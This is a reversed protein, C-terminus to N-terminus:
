DNVCVNAAIQNIFERFYHPFFKSKLYVAYWRFFFKNKTLPKAVVGGELFKRAVAWKALTAIGLDAKVMEIIAETLQIKSFRTFKVGNPKLLKQYVTSENMETHALFDQGNFDEPRIYARKALPNKPSMVVLIEDEFIQEYCLRKDEEYVNTIAIDLKGELLISIPNHTAEVVVNVEVEPYRRRFDKLIAPLWTYCTYCATSIRLSGQKNNAILALDAETAELDALIRKASQLVREGAQTLIMKKNLRHFLTTGLSSEIDLLQHSLASQTLFLRESARTVSQEESIATILRLHRIELNM